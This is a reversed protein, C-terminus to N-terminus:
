GPSVREYRDCRENPKVSSQIADQVTPREANEFEILKIMQPLLTQKSFRSSHPSRETRKDRLQERCKIILQVVSETDGNSALMLHDENVEHSLDVVHSEKPGIYLVPTGIALVNYIKCPHVIGAFKEGM